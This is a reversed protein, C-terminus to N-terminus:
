GMQKIQKQKCEVRREQGDDTSEECMRRDGQTDRMCTCVCGAEPQIAPVDYWREIMSIYDEVHQRQINHVVENEERFARHHIIGRTSLSVLVSAHHLMTLM